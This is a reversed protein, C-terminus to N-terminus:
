DKTGERSSGPVEGGKNLVKSTMVGVERMEQRELVVTGEQEEVLGRRGIVYQHYVVKAIYEMAQIIAARQTRVAWREANAVELMDVVCKRWQRQEEM